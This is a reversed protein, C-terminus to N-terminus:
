AGPVCGSRGGGTRVVPIMPQARWFRKEDGKLTTRVRSPAHNRYARMGGNTSHANTFDTQTASVRLSHQSLISTGSPAAHQANMLAFTFRKM